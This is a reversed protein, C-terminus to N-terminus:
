VPLYGFQVRREKTLKLKLKRDVKSLTWQASERVVLFYMLFILQHFLKNLESKMRLKDLITESLHVRLYHCLRIISKQHLIYFISLLSLNFDNRM